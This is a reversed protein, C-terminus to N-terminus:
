DQTSLGSSIFSNITEEPSESKAVSEQIHDLLLRMASLYRMKYREDMADYDIPTYRVTTPM